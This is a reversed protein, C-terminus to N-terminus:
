PDPAALGLGDGWLPDLLDFDAATQAVSKEAKCHHADTKGSTAFVVLHFKVSQTHAFCGFKV